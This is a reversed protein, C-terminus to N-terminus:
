GGQAPTVPAWYALGPDIGFAVGPRAARARYHHAVRLFSDGDPVPIKQVVIERGQKVLVDLLRAAAANCGPRALTGAAAVLEPWRQWTPADLPLKEALPKLQALAASAEADKGLAAQV